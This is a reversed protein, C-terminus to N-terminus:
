GHTYFHTAVKTRPDYFADGPRKGAAELAAQMAEIVATEHRQPTPQEVSVSGGIRGEQKWLMAHSVGDINLATTKQREVSKPTSADEAVERGKERRIAERAVGQRQAVLAEVEEYNPTTEAM